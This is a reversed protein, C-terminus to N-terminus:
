SRIAQVVLAVSEDPMYPDLPLSLVRAALRDAIICSGQDGWGEVYASARHPPIPYHIMTSIGAQLLRKQLTERQEVQVVFLHWVPQTDILVGPLVLGSGALASLYHGAIERRRENWGDLHRLKIRLFAAQVEDLRSNYGIVDHQYKVKSGYNGLTRVREALVPDNTTVAGGDGLAGLNKSPYFSFGAADGLSGVRRGKYWAGHAQAADEIVKLGHRQAIANIADMDAPQGYLHVAVIAKTRSTIAAEIKEPSLNYTVEDPDVPVPRAGTHTVALWTAIYTNSPVIVEDGCGLGYACLILHLAELGNGVGICHDSQCYAAFEGEFQKVEAGQIFWASDLVREFAARLEARLEEHPARLDLFPINM